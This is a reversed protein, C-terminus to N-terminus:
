KDITGAFAISEDSYFVLLDANTGIGFGVIKEALGTGTFSGASRTSGDTYTFILENEVIDARLLKGVSPKPNAVTIAGINLALPTELRKGNSFPVSITTHFLGVSDLSADKLYVGSFSASFAAYSKKYKSDLEKVTEYIQYLSWARSIDTGGPVPIRELTDQHSGQAGCDRCVGNVYAHASKEIDNYTKEGCGVCLSEMLGTETCTPAKAVRYQWEHEHTLQSVLTCSTLGGFVLLLGLFFALFKIRKM